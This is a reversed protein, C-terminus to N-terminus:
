CPKTYRQIIAYSCFYVFFSLLLFLLDATSTFSAVPLSRVPLCVRQRLYLYVPVIDSLMVRIIPPLRALNHQAMCCTKITVGILVFATFRTPTRFANFATTLSFLVSAACPERGSLTYITWGDAVTVWRRGSGVAVSGRASRVATYVRVISNSPIVM